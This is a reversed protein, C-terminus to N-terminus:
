PTIVILGYWYGTFTVRLRTNLTPGGIDVLLDTIWTYVEEETNVPINNPDWPDRSYSYNIISDYGGLEDTPANSYGDVYCYETGPGEVAFTFRGVFWGSNFGGQIIYEIISQVSMHGAIESAGWPAATNSNFNFVLPIKTWKWRSFNTASGDQDTYTEGRLAKQLAATPYGRSALWAEFLDTTEQISM